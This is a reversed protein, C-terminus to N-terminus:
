FVEWIVHWESEWDGIKGERACWWMFIGFNSREESISSEQVKVKWIQKEVVRSVLIYYLALSGGPEGREVSLRQNNQSDEWLETAKFLVYTILGGNDM